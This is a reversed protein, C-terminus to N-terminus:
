NEDISYPNLELEEIIEDITKGKNKEKELYEDIEFDDKNLLFPNAEFLLNISSINLAKLKKILNLVDDDCRDLYFPNAYLINKIQNESCDIKRLIEIATNIELDTLDKISSCLELMDNLQEDSFGLNFLEKM